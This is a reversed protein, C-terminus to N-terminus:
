TQRPAQIACKGRVHHPIERLAAHRHARCLERTKAETAADAASSLVRDCTREAAEHELGQDLMLRRIIWCRLSFAELRLAAYEYLSSAYSAADPEIGTPLRQTAM